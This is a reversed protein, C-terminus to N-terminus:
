KKKNKKKADNAVPEIFRYTVLSFSTNLLVEDGQRSPSGMKINSVNVIRHLKSIQDLFRGVNHYQGHVQIDVPIEAYFDKPFEGKPKFSLFDLGSSTGLGSINTLLSPIEKKDPLLASAVKFQEEALRKEEEFKALEKTQQKLSVLETKLAKESKQLKQIEEAKPSYVLFYFLVVPLAIILAAFGIKQPKPLKAIKGDLFGDISKNFQELNM